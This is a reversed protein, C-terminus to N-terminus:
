RKTYGDKEYITEWGFSRWKDDLPKLNMIEDVDGLTCYHNYDVIAYLNDLKYHSAFMAAEWVEGEHCEGDGLICYVTNTKKDMKFTLALGVSVSLGQGLSGAALEIGPLNEKISPHGQLRSGMKRLSMLESIDFYGAEALSAYLVPAVHGISLILRDREEWNPNKAQHKLINFYLATFIDALGLSGGLHGSQAATLSLIINKRIRFAITELEKIKM